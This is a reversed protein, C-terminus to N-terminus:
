PASRGAAICPAAQTRRRFDATRPASRLPPSVPFPPLDILPVRRHEPPIRLSAPSNGAHMAHTKRSAPIATIVAPHPSFPFCVGPEASLGSNRPTSTTSAPPPDRSRNMSAVPVTRAFVMAATAAWTIPRIVERGTASPDRTSFPASRAVISSVCTRACSKAAPASTVSASAPRLSTSPAM